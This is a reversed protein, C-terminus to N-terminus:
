SYTRPHLQRPQVRRVPLGAAIHLNRLALARWQAVVRCALLWRRVARRAALRAAAETRQTIQHLGTTLLGRVGSRLFRLQRYALAQTRALRKARRTHTHQRWHGWVRRLARQLHLHSYASLRQQTHLHRLYAAKWSSLARLTIWRHRCTLAQCVKARKQLQRRRNDCLAKWVDSTRRFLYWNHAALTQTAALGRALSAVRWHTFFFQRRRCQLQAQAQTVELATAHRKDGKRVLYSGWAGWACRTLALRRHADAHSHQLWLRHLSAQWRRLHHRLLTHHWHSTSSHLLKQHATRRVWVSHCHSLTNRRHTTTAAAELQLHHQEKFTQKIAQAHTMCRRYLRWASVVRGLVLKNHHTVATQWQSRWRQLRVRAVHKWHRVVILAITRHHTCLPCGCGVICTHM